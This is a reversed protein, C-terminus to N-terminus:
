NFNEMSILIYYLVIKLFIKLPLDVEERIKKVRERRGKKLPNEDRNINKCKRCIHSSSLGREQTTFINLNRDPKGFHIHGLSKLCWMYLM